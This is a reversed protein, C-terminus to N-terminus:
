RSARVEAREPRTLYLIAAGVVGVVGIALSIDAVLYTRRMADVDGEPCSPKCRDDLDGQQSLGYAGIAGFGVLGAVGVGGLVYTLTPVPRSPPSEPMVRPPAAPAAAECAKMDVLADVRKDDGIAVVVLQERAPGGLPSVRLTHRGPDVSTRANPVFSERREDLSLHARKVECGDSGVVRVTIKPMEREIEGIWTRCDTALSAPCEAVCTSFEESAGSLKKAMRLQQGHEYARMCAEEDAHAREAVFQVLILTLAGAVVRM